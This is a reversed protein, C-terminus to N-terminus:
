SVPLLYVCYLISLKGGILTAENGPKLEGKLSEHPSLRPILSSYIHTRTHKSNYLQMHVLVPVLISM